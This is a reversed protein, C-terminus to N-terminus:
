QGGGNEGLPGVGYRRALDDLGDELVKALDLGLRDLHQNIWVVQNKSIVLSAFEVPETEVAPGREGAIGEIRRIVGERVAWGCSGHGSAGAIRALWEAGPRTPVFAAVCIRGFRDARDGARRPGRFAGTEGGPTRRM